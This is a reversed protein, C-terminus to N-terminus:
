INSSNKHYKNEIEIQIKNLQSALGAMFFGNIGLLIFMVGMLAYGSHFIGRLMYELMVYGMTALGPIILLSIILSYVLFPNYIWALKLMHLVIKLGDKFGNLKSKGIRKEYRIPVYTVKGKRVMQSAIEVEVEFRKSSLSLTKAINTNLVYMGSLVDGVDASFLFQFLRNIIRNGIRHIFSINKESRKGIVEVHKQAHALLKHLESPPYSGDADLFAVFPTDVYDLATKVAGTKGEWHQYIVRAGKSEAIEATKDTSYGDIVLINNFGEKKLDDIVKGIAEEENLTCLVVTVLDNINEKKIEKGVINNNSNETSM